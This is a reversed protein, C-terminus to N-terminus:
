TNGIQPLPLLIKICSLVGGYVTFVAFSNKSRSPTLVICHGAIEGSMFGMSCQIPVDSVSSSFSLVNDYHQHGKRSVSMSKSGSLM